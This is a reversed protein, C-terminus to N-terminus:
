INKQPGCIAEEFTTPDGPAQALMAYEYETDGKLEMAVTSTETPNRMGLPLKPQNETRTLTGEGRQIQQIYESPKITRHGCSTAIPTSTTDLEFNHLPDPDPNTAPECYTSPPNNKSQKTNVPNQIIHTTNEGESLVSDVPTPAPPFKLDHKM